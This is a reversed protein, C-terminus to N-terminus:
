ENCIAKPADPIKGNCYDEWIQNSLRWTEDDDLEEKGLREEFVGNLFSAIEEWNRPCDSGFSDATFSVM